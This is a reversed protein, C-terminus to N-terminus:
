PGHARCCDRCGCYDCRGFRAKRRVNRKCEHFCRASIPTQEGNAGEPQRRNLDAEHTTFNGIM